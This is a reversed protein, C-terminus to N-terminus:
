GTGPTLQALLRQLAAHEHVVREYENGEDIVQALSALVDRAEVDPVVPVGELADLLRECVLADRHVREPDRLEAGFRDLDDRAGAGADALVSRLFGRDEPAVALVIAPRCKTKLSPM